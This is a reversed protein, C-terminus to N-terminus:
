QSSRISSIVKETTNKMEFKLDDDQERKIVSGIIECPSNDILFTYVIAYGDYVNDTGYSIRGESVLMKYGNIETEQEIDVIISNIGGQFDDLDKQLLEFCTKHADSLSKARNEYDFTVSIYKEKPIIFLDTYAEEKKQYVPMDFYLEKHPLKYLISEREVSNDSDNTVYSEDSTDGSPENEISTTMNNDNHCATLCVLVFALFLIIVRKKM